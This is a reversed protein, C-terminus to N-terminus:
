HRRFNDGDQQDGVLSMESSSNNSAQCVLRTWTFSITGHLVPNQAACLDHSAALCILQAWRLDDVGAHLTGVNEEQLHASASGQWATGDCSTSTQDIKGQGSPCM